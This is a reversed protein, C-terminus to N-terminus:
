SMAENLNDIQEDVLGAETELEHIQQVRFEVTEILRELSALNKGLLDRQKMIRDRQKHNLKELKETKTEFFVVAAALRRAQVTAIFDELEERTLEHITKVKELPMVTHSVSM